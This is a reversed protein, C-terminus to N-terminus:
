DYSVDKSKSKKILFRITNDFKNYKYIFIATPLHWIVAYSVKKCVNYGEFNM